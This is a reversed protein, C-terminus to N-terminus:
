QSTFIYMCVGPMSNQNDVITTIFDYGGIKVAAAAKRIRSLPHRNNM